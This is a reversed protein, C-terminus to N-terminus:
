RTVETDALAALLGVFEPPALLLAHDLDDALVAEILQADRCVDALDVPQAPHRRSARRYRPCVDPGCTGCYGRDHFHTHAEAEHGCRCTTADRGFLRRLRAIV